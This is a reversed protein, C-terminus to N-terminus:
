ELEKLEGFRRGASAEAVIPIPFEPFPQVEMCLSVASPLDGLAAGFVVSSNLSKLKMIDAITAPTNAGLSGKSPDKVDIYDINYKLILETEKVSTVSLLLNMKKGRM